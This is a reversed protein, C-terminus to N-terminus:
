FISCKFCKSKGVENFITNDLIMQACETFVVKVNGNHDNLASTEIYKGGIARALDNGQQESITRKDVLDCKNGVLVIPLKNLEHKEIRKIKNKIEEFSETDNIAFVLIFGKAQDIWQDMMNQYDEEGATDLIKFEHKEGEKTTIEIEYSDEVTPDHEKPCRNNIYRFILSTKGM